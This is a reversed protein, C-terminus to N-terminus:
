NKKQNTKNNIQTLAFLFESNCFISVTYLLSCSLLLLLFIYYYVVCLEKSRLFQPAITNVNKVIQHINVFWIFESSNGLLSFFQAFSIIIPLRGIHHNQNFLIFVLVCLYFVCRVCDFTSRNKEWERAHQCKIYPTRRHYWNNNTYYINNARKKIRLSNANTPNNRNWM